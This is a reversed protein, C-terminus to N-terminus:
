FKKGAVADLLYLDVLIGFVDPSPRCDIQSQNAIDLRGHGRQQAANLLLRAPAKKLLMHSLRLGEVFQQLM